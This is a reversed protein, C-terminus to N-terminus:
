LRGMSSTLAEDDIYQKIMQAFRRAESESAQAVTVNIVINNKLPASDGGNGSGVSAGGTMTTSAGHGVVAQGQTASQTAATSPASGAGSYPAPTPIGAVQKAAASFGLLDAGASGAGAVGASGSSSSAASGSDGFGASYNGGLAASPDAPKGTPDDLEFHLHPGTSYGTNGSQGIFQGQKVATGNQVSIAQLHGYKTVWGGAHKIHVQLGLTPAGNPYTNQANGGAFIVTGDGAAMVSTGAAVAYDIGNHGNPHNSDVVGFMLSIKSNKPVPHTLSLAGNSSSTGTGITSSEGGQQSGFLADYAQTGLWNGAMSGGAYTLGGAVLGVGGTAATVAATAGAGGLLGGVDGFVGRWNGQMVDSGISMINFATGVGPVLKGLTKGLTKFGVKETANLADKEAASIFKGTASNQWRNAKANWVAKAGSGGAGAAGAAGAGNGLVGAKTLTRKLMANQFLSNGIGGIGGIVGGAAGLIGQGINTSGGFGLGANLQALNNGATTNLFKQIAGNFKDIMGAAKQMGAIYADSAAQMTGTSSSNVDYGPQNPNVGSEKQLQAMVQNNGLDMNKGSAKDLMYQYALRQQTADLGSLQLDQALAGGQMSTMLDARSLKQGGTIRANLQAFIDTPSLRKGTMPNTTYLGFNRMLASSTTGSTLGGLAQAATANDINLYKAANATSTALNAFQGTLQGNKGFTPMVGMGVLNAATVADTGLGTLGGKMAGLTALGLRNRGGAGLGAMTSADYLASSRATTTSWDPLATAVGAAIGTIAQLGGKALAMRMDYQGAAGTIQSINGLSGSMINGSSSSGLGKQGFGSQSGANNKFAGTAASGLKGFDTVLKNVLKDLKSMGDYMKSVFNSADDAM